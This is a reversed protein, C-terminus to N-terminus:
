QAQYNSARAAETYDRIEAEASRVLEEPSSGVPDCGAAHIQEVVAPVKIAAIAAQTLRQVINKPTALPAWLAYSTGSEFNAIGAEAATPLNPLMFSRQPSGVFLARIKGSQVHPLWAQAAAVSIDSEGALLATIVQPSGRYNISRTVLGTKTKLIQMILDVNASQSAHTLKDPNAAAYALLDQYTNVNPLSTASIFMFSPAKVFGSVPSFERTAVVGNNRNFIPNSTTPNGYYLTYGDPASSVVFQAAITGNAGPRFELVIPQGLSKSMENGVARATADIITGPPFGIMFRIPKTPYQQALAPATALALACLFSWYWSVRIM